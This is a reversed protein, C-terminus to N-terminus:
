FNGKLHMRSIQLCILEVYKPKLRRSFSFLFVHFHLLSCYIKMFLLQLTHRKIFTYFLFSPSFLVLLFRVASLLVNQSHIKKLCSILLSFLFSFSLTYLHTGKQQLTLIQHYVCYFITSHSHSFVYVSAEWFTSCKYLLFVRSKFILM